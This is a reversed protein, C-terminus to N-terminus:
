AAQHNPRYAPDHELPELVATVLYIDQLHLFDRYGTEEPTELGVYCQPYWTQLLGDIAARALGPLARRVGAASNLRAQLSSARQRLRM